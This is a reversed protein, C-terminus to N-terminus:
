SLCVKRTFAIIRECLKDDEAIIDFHGFGPLIEIESNELAAFTSRLRQESTFTDWDGSIFLKPGPYSTLQKPHAGLAVSAIYGCPYAIGVYGAANAANVASGSICAGASYGVLIVKNESDPFKARIFASAALVDATESSGTFTAWGNSLGAGRLDIALCASNAAKCLKSALYLMISASGGLITYPHVLVYLIRPTDRPIHLVGSLVVGDASPFTVRQRQTKALTSNEFQM